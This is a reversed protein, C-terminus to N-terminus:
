NLSGAAATRTGEPEEEVLQQPDPPYERRPIWAALGSLWASFEDSSLSPADLLRPLAYVDSHLSAFGMDCTTASRVGMEALWDHFEPLRLGTPYCYHAPAHVGCREMSLKNQRLENEFIRRSRSVRHWHGHLQFDVGQRALEATEAPTMIHLTRRRCFTDFDLGLRRALDKLIENMEPGSLRRRRCADRILSTVPFANKATLRVQEVGMEPWAFDRERAKWLMYQCMLDFVPVNYESYYSTLYVTAPFQFERLIPWALAKFDYFGDDFTIVVSRPPLGGKKLLEVATDLPLVNCRAAKLQELRSRFVEAPMYLGCWEHEDDLSIGHYCLILLRQTRWPSRLLLANLGSFRSGKYLLSKVLSLM